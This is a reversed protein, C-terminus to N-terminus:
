GFPHFIGKSFKGWKPIRFDNAPKGKESYGNVRLIFDQLYESYPHMTRFKFVNIIEGNKGIRPMSYIPGYSPHMNYDPRKVKKVVFYLLGDITKFDVIKFGCSVLRGLGEAKSLM